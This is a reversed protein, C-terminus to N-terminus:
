SPPLRPGNTCNADVSIPFRAAQGVSYLNGTNVSILGVVVFANQPLTPPIVYSIGAPLVVLSGWPLAQGNNKEVIPTLQQAVIRSGAALRFLHSCAKTFTSSRSALGLHCHSAVEAIDTFREVQEGIYCLPNCVNLEQTIARTEVILQSQVSTHAFSDL